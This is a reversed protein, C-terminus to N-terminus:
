LLFGLLISNPQKSVQLFYGPFFNFSISVAIGM